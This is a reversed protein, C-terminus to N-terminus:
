ACARVFAQEAAAWAGASLRGEAAAWDLAIKQAMLAVVQEHHFYRAHADLWGGTNVQLDRWVAQAYADNLGRLPMAVPDIPDLINLWRGRATEVAIPRKFAEPGGYKLSFLAQPSGLTFFNELAFRDHFGAAAGRTKRADYIHDSAIVAGLSHGIVTLPIKTPTAISAALTALAAAVTAHVQPYVEPGPYGIVDGIFEAVLRREEPKWRRVYWHRLRLDSRWWPPRAVVPLRTGELRARLVGQRTQLVAAWHVAGIAVSQELASAQPDLAQAAQAIAQRLRAVIRAAWEPRQDGIGHVLLVAQPM